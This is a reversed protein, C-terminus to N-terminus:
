HARTHHDCPHDAAGRQEGKLVVLAQVCRPARKCADPGEGVVCTCMCMHMCMHMHMYLAVACRCPQGRSPRFSGLLIGITDARPAPGLPPAARMLRVLEPAPDIM